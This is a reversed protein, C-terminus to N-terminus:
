FNSEFLLSSGTPVSDSAPLSNNTTLLDDAYMVTKAMFSLTEETILNEISAVKGTNIITCGIISDIKPINGDGMYESTSILHINFPAIDDRMHDSVEVYSTNNTIDSLQAVWGTKRLAEFRAETFTKIHKTLLDGRSFLKVISGAVLKTGLALGSVSTEGLLTVPMKARSVSHAVTIMDPMYIYVSKQFKNSPFEFLVQVNVGAVSDMPAILSM